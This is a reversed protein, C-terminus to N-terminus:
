LAIVADEDADADAAVVAVADDAASATATATTSYDVSTNSSLEVFSYDDVSGRTQGSAPAPEQRQQQLPQQTPSQDAHADLSPAPAGSALQDQLAVLQDKTQAMDSEWQKALENWEGLRRRSELDRREYEGLREQLELVISQMQNREREAQRTQERAGELALEYKAQQAQAAAKLQRQVEELYSNQNALAALRQQVQPSLHEPTADAAADNDGDTAADRESVAGKREGAELARQVEPASFSSDCALLFDATLAPTLRWGHDKVFFTCELGQLGDLLGLLVQWDDSRVIAHPEYWDALAGSTLYRLYESLQREMLAKLMFVRMREVPSCRMANVTTVLASAAQVVARPCCRPLTEVFSWLSRRTEFWSSVASAGGARFGHHLCLELAILLRQLAPSAESAPELAAGSNEALTLRVLAHTQRHLARRVLAHHLAWLAQADDGGTADAPAAAVAPTIDAM